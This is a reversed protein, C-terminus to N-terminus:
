HHLVSAPGAWADFLWFHHLFYTERLLFPLRTRWSRYRTSRTASAFAQLGLADAIALARRLHLPDSVILASRVRSDRMLPLAFALNERTTRSATEVMIAAGPVGRAMAYSRATEAESAADGAARGGTFLLRKVRGARYLAIAHDIRAAFVPSPRDQDIAAGLVIAVDARQGPREPPGHAIWTAVGALWILLALAAGGLWRRM